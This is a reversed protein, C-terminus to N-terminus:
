LDDLDKRVGTTLRYGINYSSNEAINIGVAYYDSTYVPGGSYGPQTDMKYKIHQSDLAEAFGADYKLVGDRYGALYLFSMDLSDDSMGWHAGFWGVKNGVKKDLKVCGYDWNTTYEKDRFLNGAYANWRGSYKYYYNRSNKYGFYFTINKAWKSHKTCVLCHAATLLRDANVMFGSGTWTCGCEGRISMYAIACYPFKSPSKVTTRGDPYFVTKELENPIFPESESLAAEEPIDTDTHDLVVVTGEGEDEEAICISFPCLVLLITLLLSFCRLTNLTKMM